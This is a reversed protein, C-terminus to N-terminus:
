NSSKTLLKAVVSDSIVLKVCLIAEDPLIAPIVVASIKAIPVAKEVEAITKGSTLIIKALRDINAIANLRAVEEINTVKNCGKCNDVIRIVPKTDTPKKPKIAHWLKGFEEVSQVEGRGFFKNLITAQVCDGPAICVRKAENEDEFIGLIGPKGEKSFAWAIYVRKEKVEVTGKDIDVTIEGRISKQMGEPTVAKTNTM